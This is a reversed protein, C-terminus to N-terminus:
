IKQILYYEYVENGTWNPGDDKPITIGFKFEGADVVNFGARKMLPVWQRTGMISYHNDFEELVRDCKPSPMEIYAGGGSKILRFFERLTLLPYPSHELAHRVFLFDFSQDAFDTFSMDQQSCTFGRDQSAKVDEESLTIGEINTCGCEKFKLMGYGQGCGVDLIKQQDTLSSDKVLKPIIENMVSMHMQTDPESYVHTKCWERFENFKKNIEEQNM